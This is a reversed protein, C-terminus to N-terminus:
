QVGLKRQMCIETNGLSQLLMDAFLLDCIVCSSFYDQRQKFHRVDLMVKSDPLAEPAHVANRVQCCNDATILSPLAAGRVEHRRRIGALLETIEKFSM